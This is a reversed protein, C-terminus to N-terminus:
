RRRRGCARQDPVALAARRTAADVAMLAGSDEGFFVLGGATALTGGWSTRRAPRRCSGARDRRDARRDRAPGEAGARGAREADIGGYFSQGAQWTAPTRTYVRASRSRRCTTSAPPPASRRDLVLQHRGRGGPLGAHGGATPEQDPISCRGATPASGAHGLDAEERVAEGAAARREHSRARLLLRQPQRAAAAQAAPGALRRRRAGAAAARGLGLRRAAHVPLAVQPPRDQPISRSSRTRTSTTAWAARTGDYDPCPNGTPWYLTDLEPDYTGTLWTSACGHEIDKGRGRRPARSARAEARDLLAVSGQRDGSRLRGPLRPRRRRRGLHGSVVLDGVVLPASTAGYNQRWDAM